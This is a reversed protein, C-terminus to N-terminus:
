PWMRRLVGDRRVLHHWLAAGAHLCAVGLLVWAVDVHWAQLRDALDDDAAVIHPLTFGFFHITQDAASSLAWGLLPMALLLAYLLAHTFGACLRLFAPMPVPPAGRLTLRLALRVAFLLLVLLGIHRHGELLWLRLARGSVEERLLAVCAGAVVLLAMLWHLWRIPRPYPTATGRTDRAM